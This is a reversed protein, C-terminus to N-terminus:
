PTVGAIRYDFSGIDLNGDNDTFMGLILYQGQAANAASNFPVNFTRSTNAPVTIAIANGNLQNRTGGPTEMLINGRATQEVNSTNTFVLMFEVRDGAAITPASTRFMDVEVKSTFLGPNGGGTTATLERTNADENGNPDVARVVVFYTTNPQLGALNAMLAGASTTVTPTSFAQGGAQTAVYVRYQIANASAQNDSAAAWSVRIANAGNAEIAALGAFTPAQTDPAQGIMASLERTNAEQNGAKDRARVVVYYTQGQQLGSVNAAAQGTVTLTPQAFTQGGAQTAVYVDYEIDGPASRDDTAPNWLVELDTGNASVSTVGAFIPAATDAPGGGAGPVMTEIQVEDPTGPKFLKITANGVEPARDSVFRFNYLSSWRLANANQNQQFTQTSWSIANGSQDARWDTGDYPEGSHYDVDHFGVQTAVAGAPLPISFGGASRDSNLNFVAYEYAYSGNGLDTVKVAVDIYGDGPVLTGNIVVSPDQDRWAMIAPQQRVTREGNMFNLDFQSGSGSIRVQRYSANNKANGAGHDDPTVYHGEVFYRAGQNQNPDLDSNHVQLRRGITAQTSPDAPPYVFLGTAANVQYRPGLNAQTGNLGASYPDSCHVGLWDGSTSQCDNFCLNGSLAFFGHKLWSMGIQEFRGDKLRYMNQGIVPHENTNSFWKLRDTGLNCSTTGVAFATIGNASGYRALDHLDGVIVDPGTSNTLVHTWQGGTSGGGGGSGGGGSGGGGSSGGVDVGGVTYNGTGTNDYHVVRLYYTGDAPATFDIGSALGNLDDNEALQSTGDTGYLALITDMGNQMDDTRFEYDRGARLDIAFWDQDGGIECAGRVPTGATIRTASSADNGHDDGSGVTGGGSGGGLDRLALTYGGESAGADYHEVKLYHVGTQTARYEIRSALGNGGDDDTVLDTGGSNYLTMVTDMNNQLDTIEFVYRGQSVLQVAFFDVDGAYDIRGVPASGLASATAS